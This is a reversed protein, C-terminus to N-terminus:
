RGRRDAEAVRLEDIRRIEITLAGALRAALDHDAPTLARTGSEIAAVTGAQLGALRELAEPSAGAVRRAEALRM